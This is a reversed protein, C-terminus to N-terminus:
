SEEGLKQKELGSLEADIIEKFAPYPLVGDVRRGNIFFTPTGTVGLERGEEMDGLIEPMPERTNYCNKFSDVDLGAEGAWEVVKSDINVMTISNSNRGQFLRNYFYWFGEESQNYACGSAVMASPSWGEMTQFDKYVFRIDGSYDEMLKEMTVYAKATFGCAFDGFEVITVPADVPGRVPDDGRSVNFRWVAQVDPPHPQNPLNPPNSLNSSNSQQVSGNIDEEKHCRQIQPAAQEGVAGVAVSEPVPEPVPEPTNTAAPAPPVPSVATRSYALFGGVVGVAIIMTIALLYVYMKKITIGM